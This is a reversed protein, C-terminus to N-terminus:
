ASWGPQGGINPIGFGPLLLGCRALPTVTVAQRLNLGSAIKAMSCNSIRLRSIRLAAVKQLHNWLNREPEVLPPFSWGGFNKRGFSAAISWTSLHATSRM